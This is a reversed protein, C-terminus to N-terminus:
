RGGAVGGGLHAYPDIYNLHFDTPVIPLPRGEQKAFFTDLIHHAVAAANGGHIGHELFV